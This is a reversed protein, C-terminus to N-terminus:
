SGCVSVASASSTVSKKSVIRSTRTWVMACRVIFAERETLHVLCEEVGRRM